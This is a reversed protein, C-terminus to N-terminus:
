GISVFFLASIIFITLSILFAIIYPKIRRRKIKNLILLIISAVIGVFSLITLLALLIQSMSSKTATPLPTSIINTPSPLIIAEIITETPLPSIYPTQSPIALTSKPTVTPSLKPSIKPSTSPKITPLTAPVAAAEESDGTYTIASQDTPKQTNIPAASSSSISFLSLVIILTFYVLLFQRTMMN